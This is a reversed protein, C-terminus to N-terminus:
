GERYQELITLIRALESRAQPIQTEILDTTEAVRPLAQLAFQEWELQCAKWQKVRLECLALRAKAKEVQRLQESCGEYDDDRVKTRCIALAERAESFRQEARLKATRWYNSAEGELWASVRQFQLRVDDCRSALDERFRGLFAQFEILAAVDHVNAGDAM